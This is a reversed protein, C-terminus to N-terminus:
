NEMWSLIKEHGVSLVSMHDAEDIPFLQVINPFEAALARSMRIPIDQDNTGHFLAVRLSASRKTLEALRSRNDYNEILLNSLLGGVLTTAEERLSTFPAIAVVRQVPHRTAFDLAVASGLSHGIVNLRPEIQDETVGLHAALANLAEDASGRISEISAYGESKGYGPYDILLFANEPTRDGGILDIWDLALSGNGCFAVWIHKPLSSGGRQPLYFACQKGAATTFHLQMADPPLVPDYSRDYPRPHYIMRHQEFYLVGAGAIVVVCISAVVGLIRHWLRPWGLPSLIPAAEVLATAANRQRWRPDLM